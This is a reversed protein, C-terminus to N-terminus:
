EGKKYTWRAVYYVENDQNSMSVHRGASYTFSCSDSLGLQELEERSFTNTIERFKETAKLDCDFREQGTFTVYGLPAKKDKLYKEVLAEDSSSFHSSSIAFMYSQTITITEECAAVLLAIM